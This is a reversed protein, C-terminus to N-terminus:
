RAVLQDGAPQGGLVDVPDDAEDVERLVLAALVGGARLDRALREAAIAPHRDGIPVAASAALQAALPLEQARQQHKPRPAHASLEPTQPRRPTTRADLSSPGCPM